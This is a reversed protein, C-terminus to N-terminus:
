GMVDKGRVSLRVIRGIEYLQGENHHTILITDSNIKVLFGRRFKPGDVPDMFTFEIEKGVFEQLDQRKM